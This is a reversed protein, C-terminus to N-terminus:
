GRRPAYAASEGGRLWRWRGRATPPGACEHQGPSGRAVRPPRTRQAATSSSSLRAGARLRRAHSSAHRRRHRGTAWCIPPPRLQTRPTRLPRRTQCSAHLRNALSSSLSAVGNGQKRTNARCQARRTIPTPVLCAGRVSPVVTVTLGGAQAAQRRRATCCHADEEKKASRLM